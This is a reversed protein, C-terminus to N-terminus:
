NVVGDGICIKVNEAQLGNATRPHACLAKPPVARALLLVADVFATKGFEIEQPLAAANSFVALGNLRL